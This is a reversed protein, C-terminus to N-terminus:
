VNTNPSRAAANVASARQCTRRARAVRTLTSRIATLSIVSTRKRAANRVANTRPRTFRKLTKVCRNPVRFLRATPNAATAASGSRARCRSANKRRTSANRAQRVTSIASASKRQARVVDTASKVVRNVTKACIMPAISMTVRNLNRHALVAIMELKVDAVTIGAYMKLAFLMPATWQNRHALVAIMELKVDAVTIGAYMKFACLMM